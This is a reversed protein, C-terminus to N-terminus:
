FTELYKPGKYKKVMKLANIKLTSTAHFSAATPKVPTGVHRNRIVIIAM